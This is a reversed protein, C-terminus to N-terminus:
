AVNFMREEEVRIGAKDDYDNSVGGEAAGEYAFM